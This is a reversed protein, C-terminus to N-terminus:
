KVGRKKAGFAPFTMKDLAADLDSIRVMMYRGIKTYPLLHRRWYRRITSVDM